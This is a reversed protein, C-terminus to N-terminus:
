PTTVVVSRNGDKRVQPGVGIREALAPVHSIIGILLDDQRLRELADIVEDLTEPDLAGFGEDIFVAELRAGLGEGALESVHKSLALALSLSAMFTEGGSLTKVSRKEDANVHDVVSFDGTSSILSYRGDSIRLLEESAHVALVDLTEQVVFDIFHDARLETALIQLVAIQAADATIKAELQQRQKVREALSAATQEARARADIADREASQLSALATAANDAALHRMVALAVLERSTTVTSSNFSRAADGFAGAATNCWDALEIVHAERAASPPPLATLEPAGPPAALHEIAAEVRTRLQGVRLDIATVAALATQQEHSADTLAARAAADARGAADARTEAAALEGLAAQIQEAADAPVDQGFRARLLALAGARDDVAQALNDQHLKHERAAGDLESRAKTLAVAAAQTRALATQHDATAAALASAGLAANDDAKSVLVNLASADAAEGLASALAKAALAVRADTARVAAQTNAANQQAIKAAQRTSEVLASADALRQQADSDSTPHEPLPRDCVPCPDGPALDAVLHAVVHERQLALLRQNAQAEADSATSVAAQAEGAERNHDSLQTTASDHEDAASNADDLRRRLRDHEAAYLESDARAQSEALRATDLETSAQKEAATDREVDTALTAASATAAAVLAQTDAVRQNMTARQEIAYTLRVLEDRGGHKARVEDRRKEASGCDTAAAAAADVAKERREEAQEYASAVSACVEREGRLEGTLADFRQSLRTATQEHLSSEARRRELARADALTDAAQGAAVTATQVTKRAAVLAEPTADAFQDALITRTQEGKIRLENARQRALAGMRDYASLGLLAVLTKRREGPDGKLFRAFEGQPLLIAKCFSEFDLKVLEVIKENVPKIGGREVADVWHGAEFRELRGQQSGNSPLRRSARYEDGAVSFELLVRAEPMGHSVLQGLGHRGMRPVQGYLALAMADLLSTKGAGTPGTIV